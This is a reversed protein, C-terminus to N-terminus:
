THTRTRTKARRSQLEVHPGTQRNQGYAKIDKRDRLALSMEAPELLQCRQKRKCSETEEAKYMRGNGTNWIACALHFPNNNWMHVNYAVCIAVIPNYSWLLHQLYTMPLSLSDSPLNINQNAIQKPQNSKECCIILCVFHWFCTQPDHLALVGENTPWFFFLFFCLNYEIFTSYTM